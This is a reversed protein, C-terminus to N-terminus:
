PLSDVIEFETEHGESANPGIWLKFRGPEVVYEARRNFFGLRSANLTFEVVQKAGPKLTIRKFEKLERVPRTMSGVLDRTYLQVVETGERDGVNALEISATLTGAPGIRGHDLKPNRYEFKTYTLGYGFPYLPSSPIDLYKSTYHEKSPPRGTNKHNYYFPIQGVNRPFTVPLRGCPDFDGFVVDAVAHGTETGLHWAEVIAAAHDNLWGISLPRGNMLIVVVPRGAAVVAEALQQQVGPLDLTSRSYAEGSMDRGEGVVLLVVDSEGALKVAAEFGSKDDGTMECGKAYSVKLGEGARERIGYLVTVVARELVPIVDDPKGIVAWTGLPERQNDALPGIVAISKFRDTLPLTQEENKLLVISHSAVKRAAERHEKSLSLRKEAVPDSYPDDFLGLKMKWLLIRRVAKDVEEVPFQGSRVRKILETRYSNSSMDMDVGASLAKTAADAPDAAYGHTIMETISSWDSVVFGSFGWKERLITRLTYENATTPIGNLENFGSMISGAGAEIAAQFPPLYIEHLTALSMDTTNYDRGGEAAGYAVYHKACALVSEKSTLDDGQFGIVRAAGIVSGLHPDEGAGEAIRGWRPDRAIDVMPAFTWHTGSARAERAATRASLSAIEPSWSCAEALPIPFITHYGHIVDNGIILPIRHPSEEVAVKQLRNIYESGHAGLFAGAHGSRIQEKLLDESQRRIDPNGDGSQGGWNITLQGFKEELSMKQILTRIRAERQRIAADPASATASSTFVITLCLAVCAALYRPGHGAAPMRASDTRFVGAMPRASAAAKRRRKADGRTQTPVQDKASAPTM